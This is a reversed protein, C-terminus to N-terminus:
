IEQKSIPYKKKAYIVSEHWGKSCHKIKFDYVDSFNSVLWFPVDIIDDGENHYICVAMNPHHQNITEKAGKLAELESGEIDLKIYDIRPIINDQVFEDISIVPVTTVKNSYVVSEKRFANGAPNIDSVDFELECERSYLGKQICQVNPLKKEKLINYSNETPEFSYIMGTGKIYDLFLEATNGKSAGGDIIIMGPSILEDCLYQEMLSTTNYSISNLEGVGTINYLIKFFDYHRDSFGQPGWVNCYLDKGYFSTCVWLLLLHYWIIRSSEDLTNWVKKLQNQNLLFKYYIGKKMETFNIDRTKSFKLLDNIFCSFEDCLLSNHMVLQNTISVQTFETFYTNLYLRLQENERRINELEEYRRKVPPVALAVKKIFKNM